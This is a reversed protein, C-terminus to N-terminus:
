LKGLIHLPLPTSSASPSLPYPSDAGLVADIYRISIAHADPNSLTVKEAIEPLAQLM